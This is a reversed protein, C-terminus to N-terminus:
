DQPENRLLETARDFMAKREGVVVYWWEVAQLPKWVMELTQGEHVFRKWGASRSALGRRPLQALHPFPKPVYKTADFAGRKESSRVVVNGDSSVLFAETIDELEPSDLFSDILFPFAVDLAAVGLFNGAQDHLGESVTLLLGMDSEDVDLMNWVPGDRGVAVQYWSQERHDYGDPYGGDTGPYNAIIGAETAIYTWVLPMGKDRLPALAAIPDTGAPIGSGRVLASRLTPALISLQSIQTEVAERPVGAAIAVDLEALSVGAEYFASSALDAPVYGPDIGFVPDRDEPAPRALAEEAAYTMGAVVAEYHHLQGDLRRVQRTTIAGLERLAEERALAAREAAALRAESIATLGLGTAVIIILLALGILLTKERNHSVWRELKRIGRDPAALVEEDRLFRRVDEALDAVSDYRQGPKRACAKGVIGRLERAVKSAGPPPTLPLRLGARAAKICALPEDEPNAPQLSILEHLILGLSYQDSKPDLAFPAGFAQEPSMYLPTGVIRLPAEGFETPVLRAIGWDMVMVEGHRAVMINEPKLDRHVVGQEHAYAMADCVDLFMHLRQILAKDVKSRGADPEQAARHADAIVEELTQGHVLQMTYAMRGDPDSEFGYVSVISPHDLQATIQAEILFAARERPDADKGSLTRKLAMTRRLAKDRVVAVEGMAGRGIVGLTELNPGEQLELVEDVKASVTLVARGSTLSARADKPGLEGEHFLWTIFSYPNPDAEQAAYRAWLADVDGSFNGPLLVQLLRTDM